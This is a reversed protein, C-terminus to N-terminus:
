PRHGGGAIGRMAGQGLAGILLLLPVGPSPVGGPPPVAGTQVGIHFDDSWFINREYGIEDSTRIELSNFGDTSIFGLFKYIPSFTREMGTFDVITSGDLTFSLKADTGRFWAGVGYLTTASSLTYGDPFAHSTPGDLTFMEYAGDHFDFGATSLSAGAGAEALPAWTIGNNTVSPLSSSSRASTWDGSEFSEHLIDYAGLAALYTAEDTYTTIPAGNAPVMFVSTLFTLVLGLSRKIRIIM